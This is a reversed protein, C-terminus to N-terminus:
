AATALVKDVAKLLESSRFPKKLCEVEALDAANAFMDLATRQSDGLMVGSVAIIPLKPAMARLERIVQVGDLIPLYVDVIAMDFPAAKFEALGAPGDAVGTVEFDRARLVSLVAARVHAQDDIVLIRTM